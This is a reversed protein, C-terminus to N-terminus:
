GTASTFREAQRIPQAAQQAQPDPPMTGDRIAVLGGVGRLFIARYGIGILGLSELERLAEILKTRGLAAMAALDAQAVEVRWGDALDAGALTILRAAVREINSQRRRTAIISLVTWLNLRALRTVAADVGPLRAALAAM